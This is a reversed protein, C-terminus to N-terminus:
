LCFVTDPCRRPSQLGSTHEESRRGLGAAGPCFFDLVWFGMSCGLRREKRSPEAETPRPARASPGSAPQAEPGAEGASRAATGGTTKTCPLPSVAASHCVVKQRQSLLDSSCVDSSWDSIRM